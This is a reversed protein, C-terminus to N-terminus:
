DGLEARRRVVYAELEARVGADLPPQEYESSRRAGSRAPASPPTARRRQSKWREFNETSSSCRGTSATASASWRTRRASSTAATASRRTPATPSAPRTWRSRRSSRACCACRDRHRRRVERLVRRPGVRALRRRADVFNAGALFAPLMTNLGEYAAQADPRQSSTLLRRGRALAAGFRRAIQGSCFCARDGVRPRRLRALGVAHRHALPVLRARGARGAARAAHARRGRAVRGDAARAGRADSRAVDRGHAPVAHRRGGPRGRRLAIMADIMRTDYRLPSNVNVVGFM